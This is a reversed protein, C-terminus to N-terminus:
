AGSAYADDERPRARERFLWHVAATYALVMPLGLAATLLVATLSLHSASANHATLDLVPDDAALLVPYLAAGASGFLLLITISSAIFAAAGRGGVQAAGAMALSLLTLVPVAWLAPLVQYNTLLRPSKTSLFAFTALTLPLMIAWAFLGWCRARSRLKGTTKLGIWITGHLAVALLLLAMVLIAVPNFMASFPVHLERDADLPLGALMNGFLLGLAVVAMLSSFAFAIDWAERPRPRHEKQAYEVSVTRFILALLLIILLPYLGSLYAAYVPPFAAFAAGGATILWVQNGDWFPAIATLLQAREQGRRALLYWLGTGLDYGDLVVFMALLFVLLVYWLIQLTALTIM